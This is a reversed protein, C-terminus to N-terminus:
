ESVEQAATPIFAAHPTVAEGSQYESQGAAIVREGNSLGSLIETQNAAQIGLTVNRIEVHNTSDVVLV